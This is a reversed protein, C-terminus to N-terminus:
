RSIQKDNGKPKKFFNKLLNASSSVVTALRRPKKKKKKEEFGGLICNCIRTTLAESQAIHFAVEAHGSSQHWTQGPDSGSFGGPWRLPAHLSVWEIM